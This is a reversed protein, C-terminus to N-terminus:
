TYWCDRLWGICGCCCGKSGICKRCYVDKKGVSSSGM